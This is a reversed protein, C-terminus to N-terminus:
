LEHGPSYNPLCEGGLGGPSKEAGDSQAPLGGTAVMEQLFILERNRLARVAAQRVYVSDATSNLILGLTDRAATDGAQAGLAFAYQM